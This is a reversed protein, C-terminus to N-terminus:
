ETSDSMSMTRAHVLIGNNLGWSATGGPINSRLYVHPIEVDAGEGTFDFIHDPQWLAVAIQVIPPRGSGETAIIHLSGNVRIPVIAEYIAGRQLRYSVNRIRM